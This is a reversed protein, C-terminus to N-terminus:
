RVVTIPQTMAATEGLVRVMYVGTALRSADIDLDLVTGANVAGAYLDAVRRGSVDYLGVTVVQAEAVTLRASASSAIPNPAISLSGLTSVAENESATGMAITVEDIGIFNSNVGNPGGETVFYRFAFRGTTAEALGDITVTFEEWDANPYGGVVLDPNIELLLNEFDGNGSKLTGVDISEGETSYRVELRDPFNSGEGTRTFFTMTTGNEIPGSPTLIWTNITGTGTTSNFNAGIYAEPAGAQSEFVAPNGQFVTTTGVPESVNQFSWGEAPLAEVDDFGEMLGGSRHQSADGPIFIDVSESGTTADNSRDGGVPLDFSQASVAPALALAATLATLTSLRM